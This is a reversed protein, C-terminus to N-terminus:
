DKRLIGSWDVLERKLSIKKAEGNPGDIIYHEALEDGLHNTLKRRIRSVIESLRNETPNTIRDLTNIKTALTFNHGVIEYIESLRNKHEDMRNFFLGEATELFLIFIVKEIPSLRLQSADIDLFQIPENRPTILIRSPQQLLEFRERFRLQSQIHDMIRYCQSLLTKDKVKDKIIIMCSPCIDATRMKLTIERKDECFDSICGKPTHHIQQRLVEYNQFALKKLIGTAILYAVPFRIDFIDYVDWQDTHVFLNKEGNTDSASFWNNKNNLETLLIVFHTSQINKESRYKRCKKFLSDWSVVKIQEPIQPAMFENEEMIMESMCYSVEESKYYDDENTDTITIETLSQAQAAALTLLAVASAIRSTRFISHNHSRCSFPSFFAM